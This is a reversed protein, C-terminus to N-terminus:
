NELLASFIRKQSKRIHTLFTTHAMGMKKSIDRASTKRPHDFFGRDYAKKLVSLQTDTLMSLIGRDRSYYEMVAAIEIDSGWENLFEILRNMDKPLGVVSAVAHDEYAILPYEIFCLYEKTTYMFLETYVDDYVGITFCLTRKKSSTIVTIDKIADIEEKLEMLKLEPNPFKKKWTVESLLIFDRPSTTFQQTVIIQEIDRFVRELRPKVIENYRLRLRYRKLGFM